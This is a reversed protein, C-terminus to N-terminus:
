RADWASAPMTRPSVVNSPLPNGATNLGVTSRKFLSLFSIKPVQVLGPLRRRRREKKEEEKEKSIKKCNRCVRPLLMRVALHCSSIRSARPYELLGIALAKSAGLEM